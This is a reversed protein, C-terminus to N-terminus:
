NEFTQQLLDRLKDGILNLSLVALLVAVGPFLMMHPASQLYAKGDLLMAGWEADPPQVGFGLFSLGSIALISRAWMNTWLVLLSLRISPLYHRLLLQHKPLGNLKAQIVFDKHGLEVTLARTLRAFRMWSVSVLALLMNSTSPGLIGAIAIAAVLEPFAFFADTTRMLLGDLWRTSGAMLGIIAGILAGLSSILLALGVSWFAGHLIRTAIDRGLQDTGLWHSASPPNLRTLFDAKNPDYPSLWLALSYLVLLALTIIFLKSAFRKLPSSDALAIQEPCLSATM